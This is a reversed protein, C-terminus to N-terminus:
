TALNIWRSARAIFNKNVISSFIEAHIGVGPYVPEFPTSHIDMGTTTVGIICVKDKFYGPKLLPKEGVAPALYSQMVDVYSYHKFVKGWRGSYNVIMESREDLPITMNKGCNVYKGPYLKVDNRNIGLYDCAALFSLNPYLKDNYNIYTPVRRFKGDSDPVVNIHGTGKAKAVLDPLCESAYGKAAILDSRKSSDIDFAFPLYVRGSQAVADELEADHEQPSGFLVDFVIAKAGFESLATIVIAHYNRDFPFRGLKAVTDDGIEIIVVETGVPIAGAPRLFFRLDLTGFEFSDLLRFYSIALASLILICPILLRLAKKFATLSM